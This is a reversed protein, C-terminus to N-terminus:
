IGKNYCVPRLSNNRSKIKDNQSENTSQRCFIIELHVEFNSSLFVTLFEFFELKKIQLTYYIFIVSIKSEKKRSRDIEDKILLDLHSFYIISIISLYLSLSLSLSLM